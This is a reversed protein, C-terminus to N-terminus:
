ASHIPDGSEAEKSATEIAALADMIKRGIGDITPGEPGQKGNLFDQLQQWAAQAAAFALEVQEAIDNRKVRAREEDLRRWALHHPDLARRAAAEILSREDRARALRLEELASALHDRAVTLHRTDCQMTTGGCDTYGARRVEVRTPQRGL